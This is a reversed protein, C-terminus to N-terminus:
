DYWCYMGNQGAEFADANRFLSIFAELERQSGYGSGKALGEVTVRYDKRSLEVAYGHATYGQHERMFALMRGATPSANQADHPDAFGLKILADLTDADMGYFRRIGGLYKLPEYMGFILADRAAIDRNM